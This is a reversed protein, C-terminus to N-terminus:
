HTPTLFSGVPIRSLFIEHGLSPEHLASLIDFDNQAKRLFDGNEFSAWGAKRTTQANHGAIYNAFKRPM